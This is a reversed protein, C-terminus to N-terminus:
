SESSREDRSPNRAPSRSEALSVCGFVQPSKVALDYANYGMWRRVTLATMAVGTRGGLWKSSLDGKSMLGCRVRTM